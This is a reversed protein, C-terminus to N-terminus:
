RRRHLLALASTALLIAASPEPIPSSAFGGYSVADVSRGRRGGDGILASTNEIAVRLSASDRGQSSWVYAAAMNEREDNVALNGLWATAGAPDTVAMSAVVSRSGNHLSFSPVSLDDDGVTVTLLQCTIASSGFVTAADSIPCFATAGIHAVALTSKHIATLFLRQMARLLISQNRTNGLMKQTFICARSPPQHRRLSAM